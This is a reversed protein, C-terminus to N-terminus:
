AMVVCSATPSEARSALAKRRFLHSVLIPLACAGALGFWYGRMAVILGNTWEVHGSLIGLEFNFGSGAPGSHPSAGFYDAYFQWTEVELYLRGRTRGDPFRRLPGSSVVGGIILLACLFLLVRRNAM